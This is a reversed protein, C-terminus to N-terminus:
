MGEREVVWLDLTIQQKRYMSKNNNYKNECFHCMNHMTNQIDM